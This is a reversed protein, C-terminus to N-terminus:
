RLSIFQMATVIVNRDRSKEFSLPQSSVDLLDSSEDDTDLTHREQKISNEQESLECV